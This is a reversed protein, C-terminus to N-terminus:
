YGDIGNTNPNNKEDNVNPTPKISREFTTKKNSM